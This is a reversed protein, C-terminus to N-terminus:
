VPVLEIKGWAGLKDKFVIVAGIIGEINKLFDLAIYIDKANKVLNGGATAAADALACDKSIVTVADAKGLSKSHGITGSSTCVGVPMDHEYLKIGIKGSLPSTGAFLSVTVPADTWLFLDGGNEVLVEGDTENRCRIGVYESIAGAVSAMPGVGTLIAANLMEKVPSPAFDDKPLPVYSDLFKPHVKAYSEIALRSEIIWSSVRDSIDRKAQIFLDTQMHRVCFSVLGTRCMSRRYFRDQYM